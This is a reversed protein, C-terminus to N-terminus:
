GQAFALMGNTPGSKPMNYPPNAGKITKTPLYIM